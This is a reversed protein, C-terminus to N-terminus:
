PTRKNWSKIAEEATQADDGENQCSICIVSYYDYWRDSECLEVDESKCGECPKLETM